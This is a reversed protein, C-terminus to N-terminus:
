EKPWLATILMPEKVLKTEYLVQWIAETVFPMFPHILRLITDFSRFLAERSVKGHKSQEVFYDAFRHWTFGYIQEAAQHFEFNDIHRTVGSVCDALEKSLNNETNDLELEDDTKQLVFRAINWLKNAFNRMGRIKEESIIIDNGGAVGFVLAMRLSDAGYQDIVGLPDIVNGKSKSMKQRDKDRVLGHLYVHKFPAKGTVYKGLIIMRAVWFFLIDHGTEMVSTPYFRDFDETISIEDLLKSKKMKVKENSRSSTLLTAFPWQGSSFWTDFVDLDQKLESKCKPCHVPTKTEVITHGNECYWANIQIGWVIQRSLNWDRINNLWHKYIKEFRKNVFVVEKKAVVKLGLDRLSKGKKNMAIFWQKLVQPEIASGCKYCVQVAHTYSEDVKVLLNKAKLKEVILPRAKKIHQGAFEGAIPLLKGGHDIIQEMELSHRRAIEFDAADHWPTITMVGTGFKPDVAEDKIVTAVVKGNLWDAEIKQGHKYKKYRRDQPHMVVYKDGFKTEPRATAITFPGYKLYYFPEVRDEYRTELDSLSTQHRPCWNVIGLGRYALGDDYLKKFTQYVIEVVDPDLTFKERSWDCSAGLRRLQSEMIKKNEQTFDWMMKYLEPRKFDFRSQSKKELKKEFVVQTEFGAHDAGPLWLTEHGQMRHYRAMLDELAVFVAHGIHLSGNANPPPMIVSFNKSKQNKVKVNPTFVGSHEWMYYLKQEHQAPNFAKPLETM